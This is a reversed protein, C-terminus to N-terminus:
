SRSALKQITKLLFDLDTKEHFASIVIRNIRPDNATPYPFSSTIIHEEELKEVWSDPQYIYVPFDPRGWIEDLGQIAQHFKGCLNMLTDKQTLYIEQSHLFAYLNAPSGPSAGGFIAQSRISNLTEKKGLIIGAPMALGKGLSGSIVLNVNPLNISSYTGFISEGLVGFAHSDDILVTVEHKQSITEIWQYNHITSSLPDAANGLILIKGPSLGSSEELCNNKWEEFSLSPDPKIGSPFIASHTDPAIWIQDAQPFLFQSAAIGALYGSSMVLADEAGAHQAFFSEFEEYVSLRVNNMRSQGHNFGYLDIGKQLIKQYALVQGIGLYSTGSFYHYSEGGSQIIRDIKSDLSFIKM